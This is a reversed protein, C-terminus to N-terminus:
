LVRTLDSFFRSMIGGSLAAGAAVLGAFRFPHARRWEENKHSALATVSGKLGTLMPQVDPHLRNSVEKGGPTGYIYLAGLTAPVAAMLAGRLFEPSGGVEKAARGLRRLTHPHTMLDRTGGALQKAVDGVQRMEAFFGGAASKELQGFHMGVDEQLSRKEARAQNMYKKALSMGVVAPIAGLLYSGFGPALRKFAKMTAGPAEKGARELDRIHRIAFISAKAEPYLTTATLTAAMIAPAHDQMFSIAKDDVTGPIMEKIHDGAALAIPLATLVGRQLVPDAYARFRGMRTSYDRAHGLEHLALEKSLSPLYVEKTAPSYSGGGMGSLPGRQFNLRVGKGALDHKTIFSDVTQHLHDLTQYKELGEAFSELDMKPHKQKIDFLGLVRGKSTVPRGPHRAALRDLAADVSKVGRIPPGSWPLSNKDLLHLAVLSGALPAAKAALSGGVALMGALAREGPDMASTSVELPVRYPEDAGHFDSVNDGGVKEHSFWDLPDPRIM